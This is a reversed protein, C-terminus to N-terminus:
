VKLLTVSHLVQTHNMQTAPTPEMQQKRLLLPTHSSQKTALQLRESNSRFKQLNFTSDRFVGKSKAYLEFTEEETEAGTVIDYAYM